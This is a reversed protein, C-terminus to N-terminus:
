RRASLERISSPATCSKIVWIRRAHASTRMRQPQPGESNVRSISRVRNPVCVCLTTREAHARACIRCSSMMDVFKSTTRESCPRLKSGDQMTLANPATPSDDPATSHEVSSPRRQTVFFFALAAASPSTSAHSSEVINSKGFTM